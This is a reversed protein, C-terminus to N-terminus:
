ELEELRTRVRSILQSMGGEQAERLTEQLLDRARSRDGRAILMEAFERRMLAVVPRLGCASNRELGLEFHREASALDGRAASLLALFRHTSGLNAAQSVQVLRERHPELLRYLVAAQERDGILACTEGLLAIATFWFMDRPIAAFEDRALERFQAVGAQTDGSMLHAMPLVARWALLRPHRQVLGEITKAYDGLADERRRLILTQAAYITEADRSQAQRGLDFAERALREADGVRGAMQAWVVEWGLAFHRYLPQHLEAALAALRRHALRAAEIQAAELLDYIRWHHGLAELESEGIRAALGLLEEGLSLREALHDVHLLAAHRSELAVLLARPDGLRQAMALAEASLSLSREGADAFHLRDVLATRLQVALPHDEDFRALAQELLSISDQDLVGAEAHRGAFGLAAEALGSRDNRERALQAATAFTERAAPDGARQEAAGLALLIDLRPEVLARRYHEAAEEYALADAAQKAAALAYPVAKESRAEAYHYALEAANATGELAEGIRRHLRIRRSASQREYVTDRVLADAFVYRDLEDAERVL